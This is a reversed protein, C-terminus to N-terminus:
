AHLVFKYKEKLGEFIEKFMEKSNPVMASPSFYYVKKHSLNNIITSVRDEDEIGIQELVYKMQGTGLFSAINELVQRLLVFHYNYLDDSANADELTQLLLLHYLLVSRKPNSLTFADGDHELIYQIFKNDKGTKGKFKDAKEGKSLWDYLISAIGLHHTTIIIKKREYHREILDFLTAATIFINHDDLSSVPDDIFFHSDQEDTWEEIDFLALFFCWVFIREEGRSIKIPTQTEDGDIFFSISGIGLEPNEANILNFRFSYKPKYPELKEFIADETLLSHYRNLSSPTITLAIDQEGNEIDNNWIFLDESFANYYVGSQKGENQEKTIDKYAVSLRTKGTANFAYILIIRKDTDNIKTAIESLTAM